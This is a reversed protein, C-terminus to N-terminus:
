VFPAHNIRDGGGDGCRNRDRAGLGDRAASAGFGNQALLKMGEAVDTATFSLAAGLKKAQNYLGQLEEDTAGAMKASAARIMDDFDSYVDVAERAPVSLKRWAGTLLEGAQTCGDAISKWHEASSRSAEELAQNYDGTSKKATDSFGELARSAQELGETFEDKVSIVIWAKGAETVGSSEAM